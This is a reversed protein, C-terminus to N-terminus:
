RISRNEESPQPRAERGDAHQKQQECEEMVHNKVEMDDDFVIHMGAFRKRPVDCVRSSQKVYSPLPMSAVSCTAECALLM